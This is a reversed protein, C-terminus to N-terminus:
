VHLPTMQSFRLNRTQWTQSIGACIADHMDGDILLSEGKKGIVMATGTDQCSPFMGESSIVANKLLELAVFRDNSSAEPDDLISRLQELHASRFFHSVGSFATRM